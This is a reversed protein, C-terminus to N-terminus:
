VSHRQAHQLGETRGIGLHVALSQQLLLRVATYRAAGSRFIHQAVRAAAGCGRDLVVTQDAYLEIKRYGRPGWEPCEVVARM